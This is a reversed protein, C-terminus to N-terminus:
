IMTTAKHTHSGRWLNWGVTFKWHLKLPSSFQVSSTQNKFVVVPSGNTSGTRKRIQLWVQSQQHHCKWRLSLLQDNNSDNIILWWNPSDCRKIPSILSLSKWLYLFVSPNSRNPVNKGDDDFFPWVKEYLLSAIVLYIWTFTDSDTPNRKPNVHQDLPYDQYFCDKTTGKSWSKNKGEATVNISLSSWQWGVSRERKVIPSEILIPPQTSVGVQTCSPPHLRDCGDLMNIVLLRLRTHYNQFVIILLLDVTCNPAKAISGRNLGSNLGSWRLFRKRLIPLWSLCVLHVLIALQRNM